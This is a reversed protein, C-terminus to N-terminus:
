ANEMDEVALEGFSDRFDVPLGAAFCMQSTLWLVRMRAAPAVLVANQPPLIGRLLDAQV